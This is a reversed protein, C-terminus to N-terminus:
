KDSEKDETALTFVVYNIDVNKLLEKADDTQDERVVLRAPQVAQRLANFNEDLFFYKINSDDLISKIFAIDALNFTSLIEVFRSSEPEAPIKEALPTGCNLCTTSGQSYEYRCKSCLM